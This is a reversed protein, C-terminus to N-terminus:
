LWFQFSFRQVNGFIGFPTYSYDVGVGAAGFGKQLGIGYSMSQEDAPGVRGIRLSLTEMFTYELGIKVQEPYDRPHEADLSLRLAHM